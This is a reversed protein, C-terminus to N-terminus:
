LREKQMPAPISVSWDFKEEIKAKLAEAAGMEGHTLFVHKPPARFNELWSLIENYDAHASMNQMQTIEANVPWFQGHIKIEKEGRTLRDGRTEAAQFGPFLITNRRDGLYHKLHHLVRGGTAMGSASIIVKPMGNSDYIAKSDEPTRTYQVMDEMAACEEPSLRHENMHRTLLDTVRIAMPSDLYIPMQPIKKETKLIYLAYIISQARGVAFSPIIVSGGRAATKRIIEGLEETPDDQDHLRDGYTSELVLYDTEQIKAAPKMVPDHIRGMDGSFLISTSGNQVKIFSSGLIHGARHFMFNLEDTLAHTEGLDIPFFHDFCDRAEKETYLPLAPHHKTYSYKNARYADEEQIHGSDPLLIKCLDATASSCYIKGKFGAKVLKPLYGSHDLHAHTLLVADIRNPNIPLGAWNQLRLEKRGQFLGCDILIKKGDDELLYKSGTVTQAAGMFTLDM